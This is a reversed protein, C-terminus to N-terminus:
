TFLIMFINEHHVTLYYQFDKFIDYFELALFLLSLKTNQPSGLKFYKNYTNPGLTMNTLFFITTMCMAFEIWFNSLFHM